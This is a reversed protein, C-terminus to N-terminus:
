RRGDSEMKRPSVFVHWSKDGDVQHLTPVDREVWGANRVDEASFARDASSNSNGYISDWILITGPGLDHLTKKDVSRVQSSGYPNIDLFYFIGPHAAMVKPYDLHIPDDRYWACIRRAAAWDPSLKVPVVPHIANAFVPVVIVALAAWRLPHHWQLRDFAWEWGRASLIGWFPAAVLLYRAEGDSGMRGLWFLLSHAVLVFIPIAATLEIAHPFKLKISPAAADDDDDLSHRPRLSRWIGLLTAPLVIPSVVTPLLGLM